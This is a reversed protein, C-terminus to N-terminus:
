FADLVLGLTGLDCWLVGLVREANSEGGIKFLSPASKPARQVMAAGFTIAWVALLRWPM